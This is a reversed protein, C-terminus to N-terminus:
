KKIVRIPPLSNISLYYMKQIHVSTKLLGDIAMMNHDVAKTKQKTQNKVEWDVAITM